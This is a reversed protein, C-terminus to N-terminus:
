LSQIKDGRRPFHWWQPRTVYLPFPMLPPTLYRCGEEGGWTKHMVAGNALLGEWPFTHWRNQYHSHAFCRGAEPAWFVGLVLICKSSFDESAGHSWSASNADWMPDLSASTPSFERKRERLLADRQLEQTTRGSRARVQIDATRAIVSRRDASKWIRKATKSENSPKTMTITWQIRLLSTLM